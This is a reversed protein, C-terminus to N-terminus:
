KKVVLIGVDCSLKFVNSGVRALDTKSISIMQKSNQITKLFMMIKELSGTMEFHATDKTYWTKDKEKCAGYTSLTLGSQAITDLIFMMRKYCYEERNDTEVACTAINNKSTTVLSSLDQIIKDCQRMEQQQKQLRVIENKYVIIYNNLPIYAGYYLVACLAVVAFLTALYRRRTSTHAIYNYIANNRPIFYMVVGKKVNM